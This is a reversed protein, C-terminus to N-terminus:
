HIPLNLKGTRLASALLEVRRMEVLTKNYNATERDHGNEPSAPMKTPNAKYELSLIATKQIATGRKYRHVSRLDAHGLCDAVTKDDFGNEHLQTGFTRRLDRIGLPKIKARICAFRIANKISTLRGGSRYSVFFLDHGNDRRAALIAEVRPPMPISARRKTKGQILNIRGTKWDIQDKTLGLADNQRLGTYLVVTCIDRQLSNRFAALFRDVDADALITNQVNDFAPLEVRSCPNYACLDNRVALSFVRSIISMERHITAAKRMTGHQTPTQMRSVKFREIDAPKIESIAKGKLFPMSAKCITIATELSSAAQNAAVHELYVRDVFTEWLVAAQATATGSNDFFL